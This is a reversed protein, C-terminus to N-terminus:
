YLKAREIDNPTGADIINNTTVFAKVKKRHALLFPIFFGPSDAPGNSLLYAELLKKHPKRYIYFPSAAFTSMPTSPKEVFSIVRNDDNMSLCGFRNKIIEPDKVDRAVTVFVNGQVSAYDLFSKLTFSKWYTTDSPLVFYSPTEPVNRFAFALDGLAGLRDPPDSKGDNLVKIERHPYRSCVHNKILDFYKANSVLTIHTIRKEKLLDALVHDLITRGDATKILSKPKNHLIGQTRVGFGGALIIAQTTDM